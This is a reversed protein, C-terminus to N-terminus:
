YKVLVTGNSEVLKSELQGCLGHAAVEVIAM